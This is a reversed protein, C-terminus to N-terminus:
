IDEELDEELDGEQKMPAFRINRNDRYLYYHQVFFLLDFVITGASGVIFPMANKVFMARDKGNLFNENTFLSIDYSINSVLMCYFIFPSVGDTSKRKYNMILQPFRSGIYFIAGLWACVVGIYSNTVESLEQRKVLATTFVSAYRVVKAADSTKFHSALGLAGVAMSKDTSIRPMKNRNWTGRRSDISDDIKDDFDQIEGFDNSPAAVLLITDNNKKKTSLSNNYIIGYYYYQICIVLDIILFFITLLIQFLLQKTLIAGLMSIIDGILWALLFHISLGEVNKSKFTEIMQPMLAVFSSTFSIFGMSNSFMQCVSDTGFISSFFDLM